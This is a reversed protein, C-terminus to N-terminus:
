EFDGVEIELDPGKCEEVWKKFDPGDIDLEGVKAKTNVITQSYPSFKDISKYLHASKPFFQLGHDGDFFYCTVVVVTDGLKVESDPLEKDGLAVHPRNLIFRFMGLKGKTYDARENLKSQSHMDECLAKLFDFNNM